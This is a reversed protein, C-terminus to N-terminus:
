LAYETTAYICALEKNEVMDDSLMTQMIGQAIEYEGSLIASKITKMLQESRLTKVVKGRLIAQGVRKVGLRTLFM